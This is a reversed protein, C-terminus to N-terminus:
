LQNHHWIIRYYRTVAAIEGMCRYKLMAEFARKSGPVLQGEIEDDEESRAQGDGEKGHAM